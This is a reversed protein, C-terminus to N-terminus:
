GAWGVAAAYLAAPGTWRSATALGAALSQGGGLQAGQLADAVKWILRTDDASRRFYRHYYRWVQKLLFVNLPPRAALIEVVENRVYRDLGLCVRLATRYLTSLRNVPGAIRGREGGQLGTAWVPAGFTMHSRM